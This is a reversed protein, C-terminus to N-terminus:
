IKNKTKTGRWCIDEEEVHYSLISPPWFDTPIPWCHGMSTDVCLAGGYFHGWAPLGGSGSHKCHGEEYLAAEQMGKSLFFMFLMHCCRPKCFCWLLLEKNGNLVYLIPFDLNISFSRRSVSLVQTWVQSVRGSPIERTWWRYTAFYLVGNGKKDILQWFHNVLSKWNKTKVLFHFDSISGFTM